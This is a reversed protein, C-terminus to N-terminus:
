KRFIRKYYCRQEQISRTIQLWFYRKKQSNSLECNELIHRIEFHISQLIELQYLVYLPENLLQNLFHIHSQHFPLKASKSLGKMHNRYVSMEENMFHFTSKAIAYCTMKWTVSYDDSFSSWPITPIFATKVMMSSTPLILRKVLDNPFIIEPYQYREHYSQNGQFLIEEAAKEHLFRANHFCGNVESNADLFDVQKQLKLPDTWYDDGDLLAFYTSHISTLVRKASQVIGTNKDPFFLRAPFDPYKKLFVQIKERTGDMSGDDSICVEFPFNVQQICIGELAQEIYAEHQYTFLLIIVKM